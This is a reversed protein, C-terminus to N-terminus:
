DKKKLLRFTEEYICERPGIAVIEILKKGSIRYIIRFRGVRFSRLGALEDRLSKGSYPESVITQLSTKIKKKLHPHLNRILAAVTDPVKLKVPQKM